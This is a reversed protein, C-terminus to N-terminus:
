TKMMRQLNSITNRVVWAKSGGKAGRGGVVCHINNPGRLLLHAKKPVLEYDIGISRADELAALVDKHVTYGMLQPM